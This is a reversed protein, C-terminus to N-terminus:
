RTYALMNGHSMGHSRASFCHLRSNFQVLSAGICLDYDNYQSSDYQHRNLGLPGVQM